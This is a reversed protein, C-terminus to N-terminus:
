SFFSKPYKLEGKIEHLKDIEYVMFVDDPVEFQKLELGLKRAPQFGLRPYYTPHGILLIINYGLARCRSIGENILKAGIGQKQYNPKVAIPALVIVPHYTDHDEVSAKSLLIHGVIEDDQEAVISLEPIFEESSRIRDILKSEDERNDFALYNLQYVEEFDKETETRIIM